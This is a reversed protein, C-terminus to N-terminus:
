NPQTSDSWIGAKLDIQNEQMWKEINVTPFPQAVEIPFSSWDVNFPAEFLGYMVRIARKVLDAYLTPDLLKYFAPAAEDEIVEVLGKHDGLITFLRLANLITNADVPKYNRYDNAAFGAIYQRLIIRGPETTSLYQTHFTEFPTKAIKILLELINQKILFPISSIVCGPYQIDLGTLEGEKFMVCRIYRTETLTLGQGVTELKGADSFVLCNNGERVLHVTNNDDYGVIVNAINSYNM